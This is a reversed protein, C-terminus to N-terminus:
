LLQQRFTTEKAFGSDLSLYAPLCLFLRDRSTRNTDRHQAHKEKSIHQNFHYSLRSRQLDENSHTFWNDVQDSASQQPIEDAGAAAAAATAPLLLVV